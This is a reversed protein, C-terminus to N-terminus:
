EVLGRTRWAETESAPVDKKSINVMGARSRVDHFEDLASTAVLSDDYKDGLLERPARTIVSRTKEVEHVPADPRTAVSLMCFHQVHSPRPWVSASPGGSPGRTGWFEYMVAADIGEAAKRRQWEFTERLFDESLQGLALPNWWVQKKGKLQEGPAQMSAFSGLDMMRTTDIAGQIKLIPEFTSRGHKEGLADSANIIIVDPMLLLLMFVRREVKGSRDIAAIAGAVEQEKEKSRPVIIHGGWIDQPYKYARFKLKTVVGLGIYGGRLGWLLDPETSAWVVSGDLKVIEADLMNAPDSICGKERSMVSFGGAITSGGVGIFPTAAAVVSYDPAVVRMQDYYEGWLCGAGIVLVENERDFDFDRFARTSVLVDKASSNGAGSNRVDFELSSEGLFKVVKALSEITQPRVVLKPSLNKGSSWTQSEAEYTQDLPTVVEDESVLAKLDRLQSERGYHDPHSLPSLGMVPEILGNKPVDGRLRIAGEMFDLFTWCVFISVWIYGVCKELNSRHHKDLLGATVAVHRLSDEVWLALPHATFMVWDNMPDGGAMIRGYAHNVFAMLFNGFVISWRAFYSGGQLSLVNAVFWDVPPEAIIRMGQHWTHSWFRRITYADKWEGFLPPWEDPTNIGALVAFSSAVRYPIDMTWRVYLMMLAGVVLRRPISVHNMTSMSMNVQTIAFDLALFRLAANVVQSLAFGVRSFTATSSRVPLHKAQFRWGVGRFTTAIGLADLVSLNRGSSKVGDQGDEKRTLETPSRLWLYNFSRQVLGHINMGLPWISMFSGSPPSVIFHVLTYFGVSTAMVKLRSDSLNRLALVEFVLSTLLVLSGHTAM